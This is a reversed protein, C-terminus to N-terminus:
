PAALPTVGGAVLRRFGCAAAPMLLLLLMVETRFEVFYVQLFLVVGIIIALEAAAKAFTDASAYGIAALAAPVGLALLPPYSLTYSKLDDLNHLVLDTAPRPDFGGPILWRLAAYIGLTVAFLPASRVIAKGLGEARRAALFVLAPFVLIDYKVFMGVALVAALAVTQGERALILASLWVVLSPRDWPHFYHLVYTLPLIAAFYLLAVLGAGRGACGALFAFLLLCGAFLYITDQVFYCRELSQGTARHLLEASWVPILRLNSGNAGLETWSAVDPPLTNTLIAQHLRARAATRQGAYITLQGIWLQHTLTVAGSLAIVILWWGLRGADRTRATDAPGTLTAVSM